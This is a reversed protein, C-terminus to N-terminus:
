LCSFGGLEGKLRAALASCAADIAQEIGRHDEYAGSVHAASMVGVRIDITFGNPEVRFTGTIQHDIFSERRKMMPQDRRKLLEEITLPDRENPM